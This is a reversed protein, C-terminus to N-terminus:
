IKLIKTSNEFDQKLSQIIEEREEKTAEDCSWYYGWRIDGSLSCREIYNGINDSKRGAFCGSNRLFTKADVFSGFKRFLQKREADLYCCILAFKRQTTYKVGQSLRIIENVKSM